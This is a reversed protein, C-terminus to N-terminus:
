SWGKDVSKAQWLRASRQIAQTTLLKPLRGLSAWEKELAKNAQVHHKGRQHLKPNLMDNKPKPVGSPIRAVTPRSMRTLIAKLGCFAGYLFMM